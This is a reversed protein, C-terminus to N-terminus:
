CGCLGSGPRIFRPIGPRIFTPITPSSFDSDMPSNEPIRVVFSETDLALRDRIAHAYTRAHELWSRSTSSLYAYEASFLAEADTFDETQVLFCADCIFIRLPFTLEPRSLDAESLYANSPPAHGLDLIKRDLPTRCHRCIRKM